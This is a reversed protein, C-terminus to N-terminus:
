KILMYVNSVRRGFLFIRDSTIVMSALENAFSGAGRGIFYDILQDRTWNNQTKNDVQASSNFLYLYQNYQEPTLESGWWSGDNMMFRPDEGEARVLAQFDTYPMTGTRVSYTPEGDEKPGIDCGVFTMGVAFIIIPITLLVNKNAMKKEKVKAILALYKKM